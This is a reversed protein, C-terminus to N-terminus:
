EERGGFHFVDPKDVHKEFLVRNGSSWVSFHGLWFSTKGLLVGSKKVALTLSMRTSSTKRFSAGM